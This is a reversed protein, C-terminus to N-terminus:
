WAEEEAEEKFTLHERTRGQETNRVYDEYRGRGGRGGLVLCDRGEESMDESVM